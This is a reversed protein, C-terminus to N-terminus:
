SGTVAFTETDARCFREDPSIEAAPARMLSVLSQTGTMATCTSLCFRRFPCSTPSPKRRMREDGPVFLARKAPMRIASSPDVSRRVALSIEGPRRRKEEGLPREVRRTTSKPSFFMGLAVGIVGLGVGVGACVGDGGGVGLGVGVLVGVGVGDGNGLGVGIAVDVAVGRGVGVERGVGVRTEVGLGTGVGVERGVGVRTEVGLGTGVGVGPRVSTGVRGGPPPPPPPPPPAAEVGM